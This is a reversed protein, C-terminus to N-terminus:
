SKPHAYDPMVLAGLILLKCIKANDGSLRLSHVQNQAQLYVDFTEEFQYQSKLHAHGPMALNGLIVLKSNRQLIQLFFHTIFNIKQMGILM